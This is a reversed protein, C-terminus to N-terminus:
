GLGGRTKEAPRRAPGAPWARIAMGLLVGNLKIYSILPLTVVSLKFACDHLEFGLEKFGLCM